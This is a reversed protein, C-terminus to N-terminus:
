QATIVPFHALAEFPEFAEVQLQLLLDLTSYNSQQMGARRFAADTHHALGANRGPKKKQLHQAYVRDIYQVRKM